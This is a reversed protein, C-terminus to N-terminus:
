EESTEGEGFLRDFEEKTITVRRPKNGTGENPAIIGMDEMNDVIRAARNFGLGFRRQLKGISLEGLSM